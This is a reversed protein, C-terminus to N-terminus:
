DFFELKNDYALTTFHEFPKAEAALIVQGIKQAGVKLAKMPGGAM